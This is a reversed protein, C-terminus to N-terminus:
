LVKKVVDQALTQSSKESISEKLVKTAAAIAIEVIESKAERLMNTKEVQLREKGQRVVREVDAKASALLETKRQEGDARAQDLIAAAESKAQHVVRTQEEEIEKMRQEIRDAHKMSMEVRKSREDLLRVLPTYVWKWLVLLVIIFNIMQAIFIKLNIGLMGLGGTAEVAKATEQVLDTTQAASSM